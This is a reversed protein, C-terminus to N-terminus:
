DSIALPMRQWILHLHNIKSSRSPWQCGTRDAINAVAPSRTTYNRSTKVVAEAKRATPIFLHTKNQYIKM